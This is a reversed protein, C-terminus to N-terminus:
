TIERFNVGLNKKLFCVNGFKWFDQILKLIKWKWGLSTYTVPAAPKPRLNKPPVWMNMLPGLTEPSLLATPKLSPARFAAMMVKNVKLRQGLWGKKEAEDFYGIVSQWSPLATMLSRDPQELCFFAGWAWSLLALISSRSALINGLEIYDLDNRGLPFSICRTHTGSNMFIFSTRVTGLHCLAGCRLALVSIVAAVLGM